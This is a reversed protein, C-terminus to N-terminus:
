FVKLAYEILNKTDTARSYVTPSGLVVTVFIRGDTQKVKATLCYGAENIYGTKAAMIPQNALINTYLYLPNKITRTENKNIITYTYTPQISAKIVTPRKMLYNILIAVDTATSINGVEIGSPDVFITSMMNLKKTKGNMKNVFEERSLGTSRVLALTANNASGTIMGYFLDEVTIQDGPNVALRVGSEPAPLDSDEITVVKNMDPNTEIFIIASMLKTLSAINRKLYSNKEYIVQGKEADYILAVPAKIVPAALGKVQPSVTPAAVAALAASADVAEVHVKAVGQGTSAIIKFATSSLDIIRNVVFPGTSKVQCVVSKKNEPNTVRLKTNLPYDNSACGYPYRSSRYWSAYGEYSSDSEFVAVKSYPLHAFARVYKEIVNTESYLPRWKLNISDYFYIKKTKLNDSSYKMVIVLDRTFIKIPDTKIDYELIVSVLTLDEPMILGEATMSKLSVEAPIDLVNPNIALTILGDPKELTYGKQIAAEDLHLNIDLNEQAFALNVLCFMNIVFIGFAIPVFYKLEVQFKAM